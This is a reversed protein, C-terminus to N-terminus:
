RLMKRHLAGPWSTKPPQVLGTSLLLQNRNAGRIRHLVAVVLIPQGPGRDGQTTVPEFPGPLFPLVPFQKMCLLPKVLIRGKFVLSFGAPASRWLITDCSRTISQQRPATLELIQDIILSVIYLSLGTHYVTARERTIIM